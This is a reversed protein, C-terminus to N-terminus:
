NKKKYCGSHEWVNNLNAAAQNALGLLEKDSIKNPQVMRTVKRRLDELTKCDAAELKDSNLQSFILNALEYNRPERINAFQGLNPQTLIGFAENQPKINTYFAPYLYADVHQVPNATSLMIISLM